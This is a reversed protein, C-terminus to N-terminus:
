DLIRSELYTRVRSKVRPGPQAQEYSVLVKVGPDLYYRTAGISSLGGDREPLWNEVCTKLLGPTVLDKLANAQEIRDAPGAAPAEAKEVKV